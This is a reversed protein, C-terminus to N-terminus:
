AEPFLGPFWVSSLRAPFALRLPARSSESVVIGDKMLAAVTRKATAHSVDLLSPVEGRPLEGLRFITDVVIQSRSPLRQEAVENSVWGLVRHRLTDPRLLLRMFHVQDLCTELFFSTFGALASESLNGRGDLDGQRPQDCNMLHDKYQQQKRALGRAVSWIGKTGLANSLTAYSLLRAVRGNGDFFPHIWLLRHHAAAVAALSQSRNLDGYSAEFRDLFRPVAGPSIPILKGIQVDRTRYVGPKVEVSDGSLPDRVVLLEAPLKECFRRHIEAITARSVINSEIGGNDIWEQVAIHAEAELQLNRKAADSSYDKKLAREIDIPHTYHGEILNSYYCNMARMLVCLADNISQPLSSNLSASESALELILESINPYRDGTVFLPEMKSINEGRDQM